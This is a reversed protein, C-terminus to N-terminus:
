CVLYQRSQLESTHEESRTVGVSVLGVQGNGAVMVMTGGVGPRTVIPTGISMGKVSILLITSACNAPLVKGSSPEPETSTVTLCALMAADPSRSSIESSTFALSFFLKKPKPPSALTCM